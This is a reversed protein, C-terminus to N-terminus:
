NEPPGSREVDLRTLVDEANEDFAEQMEGIWRKRVREKHGERMWVVIGDYKYLAIRFRDDEDREREEEAIEYLPWMLDLEYGQLVCSLLTRKPNDRSEFDELSRKIGFADEVEGQEELYTKMSGRATRLDEVLPHDFFGEVDDEDPWGSGRTAKAYEKCLTRILNPEGSFYLAAYTARKAAQRSASRDPLDLSAGLEDWLDIEGDLHKQLHRRIVSCTIGM